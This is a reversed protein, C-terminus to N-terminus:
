ISETEKDDYVYIEILILAFIMLLRWVFTLNWLFVFNLDIDYVDGFNALCIFFDRFLELCNWWNGDMMRNFKNSYWVNMLYVQHDQNRSLYRWQWEIMWVSVRSEGWLM